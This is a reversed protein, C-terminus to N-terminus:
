LLHLHDYYVLCSLVRRQSQTFCCSQSLTAFTWIDFRRLEEGHTRTDPMNPQDVLM